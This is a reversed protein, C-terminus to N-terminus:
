ENNGGTLDMPMDVSITMDFNDERRILELANNRTLGLEEYLKTDFETVMDFLPKLLNNNNADMIMGKTTLQEWM